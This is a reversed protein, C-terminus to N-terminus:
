LDKLHPNLGNTESDVQVIKVSDFLKLADDLSILSFRDDEFLPQQGSLFYIM